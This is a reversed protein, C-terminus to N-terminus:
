HLVEHLQHTFLRVRAPPHHGAMMALYDELSCATVGSHCTVCGHMLWEGCPWTLYFWVAITCSHHLWYYTTPLEADFWRGSAHSSAPATIPRTRRQCTVIIPAVVYLM